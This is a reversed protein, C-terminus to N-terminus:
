NQLEKKLTECFNIFSWFTKIHNTNNHREILEQLYTVATVGNPNKKTYRINRESLMEKLYAAHFQAHTAFDDLKGMVEPDDKSVDYFEMYTRLTEATPNRKYVKRNGLCWTEFCRNQVILVFKTNGNLDIQEATMFDNVERIRFDVEVEDADICLVLYKFKGIANVDDVANKLHNNLISPYGNGNFIYFQKKDIAFADNVETLEPLLHSLWKPYVKRETRRGEVLFYINM